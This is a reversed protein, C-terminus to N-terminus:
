KHQTHLFNTSKLMKFTISLHHFCIFIVADSIVCFLVPDTAM